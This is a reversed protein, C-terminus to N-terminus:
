NIGVNHTGVYFSLRISSELNHIEQEYRDIALWEDSNTPLVAMVDILNQKISALLALTRRIQRPELYASSM